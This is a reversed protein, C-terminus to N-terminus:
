GAPRENLAVQGTELRSNLNSLILPWGGTVAAVLKSDAREVTHSITLKVAAGQPELEIDCRAHGEARLEPRFENRWSLVIRRPRDLEVIDGTDAIRGDPFILRWPSGAKWDSEFSMGFWYKRMFETTTLAAWLEEPTTRIYTVYVFSSKGDAM